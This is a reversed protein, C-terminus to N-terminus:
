YAVIWVYVIIIKFETNSLRHYEFWQPYKLLHRTTSGTALGGSGPLHFWCHFIVLLLLCSLVSFLTGIPVKWCLFDTHESGRVLTQCQWSNWTTSGIPSGHLPYLLLFNNLFKRIWVYVTSCAPYLLLNKEWKISGQIAMHPHVRLLMAIAQYPPQLFRSTNAPLQLFAHFIWSLPEWFLLVFGSFGVKGQEAFEGGGFAPHM